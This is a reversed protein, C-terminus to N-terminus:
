APGAEPPREAVIVDQFERHIPERLRLGHAAIRTRVWQERYAVAAEPNSVDAVWAAGDRYAFEFGGRGGMGDGGLLFWTAFLRGGPRLVRATEALYRDAADARLHTFVSTALALDFSRDPYPFRYDAASLRGNPNYASNHVDALRFRFAAPTATYHEQCWSIGAPVIDFGDYSGPPRLEPALVRAMRGIGCGIDLVQDSPQLQALERLRRLLHEGTARFDSDGVFQLRRPPTLRDSRGLLRDTVDAARLSLSRAARGIV